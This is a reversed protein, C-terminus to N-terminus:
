LAVLGFVHFSAMATASYRIASFYVEGVRSAMLPALAPPMRTPLAIVSRGSRKATARGLTPTRSM